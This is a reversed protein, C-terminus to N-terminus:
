CLDMLLKSTFIIRSIKVWFKQKNKQLAAPFLNFLDSLESILIPRSFIDKYFIRENYQNKEM